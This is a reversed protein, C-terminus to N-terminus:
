LDADGFDADDFCEPVSLVLKLPLLVSSRRSSLLPASTV